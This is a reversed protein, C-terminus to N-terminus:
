GPRPHDEGHTELFSLLAANYAPSNDEHMIHSAGPVVVRDVRPLLEELRDTVRHFVSPSQGGNVLLVPASIARMDHTDLKSLGSGLFEAPIANARVQDLRSPSLRDFFDRGLVAKGFVRMAADMDGKRAAEAAPKIGAIGLRAISIATRPRIPMLRLLELLTPASSVFLTIAPPEALVLTRVLAPERVALVLSVLAGYSHGVLHAPVVDLARLFSALDDVHEDMNYDASEPIPENPWHYRRSYAIAHYRTGIEDIQRSWTRYDSASGHVLVVPEGHGAEVYELPTGNILKRM